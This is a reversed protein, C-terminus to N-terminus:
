AKLDVLQARAKSKGLHVRLYFGVGCHLPCPNSGQNLFIEHWAALRLGHAVVISAQMSYSSFGGCM